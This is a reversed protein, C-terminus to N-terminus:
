VRSIRHLLEEAVLDHMEQSPYYSNQTPDQWGKMLPVLNGNDDRLSFPIGQSSVVRVVEADLAELMRDTVLHPFRYQEKTQVESPPDQQAFYLVIPKKCNKILMQMDQLWTQQNRAVIEMALHQNLAFLREWIRDVFFMEPLTEFERHKAGAETLKMRNNLRGVPEFVDNAYGRASTAEIITVESKGLKALLLPESSFTDPRAGGFAYNAAGIQEPFPRRIFRGFTAASGLCVIKSERSDRVSYSLGPVKHAGYDMMPRDDASYMDVERGPHVRSLISEYTSWDANKRVFESLDNDILNVKFPTRITEPEPIPDKLQLYKQVPLWGYRDVFLQEYIVPRVKGARIWPLAMLLSTNWEEISSIADREGPWWYDDNNKARAEWSAAIAMPSRIIFLVRVNQFNNLLMDFHRYLRPIKDGLFNTERYEDSKPNAPMTALDDYFTDGAKVDFFRDKKFLDPTLVNSTDLKAKYREIGVSIQPHRNLTRALATTGSRACGSLFLYRLLYGEELHGLRLASQIRLGLNLFRESHAVGQAFELEFAV